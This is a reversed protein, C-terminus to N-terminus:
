RIGGCPHLCPLTRPCSAALHDQCEQSSCVGEVVPLAACSSGSCYRCQATSASSGTSRGSEERFEIMGKLTAADAVATLWFLKTRGCGEHLNVKIAEEEEKFVQRTHLRTRRHLHLFRDCDACLNGCSDCLIIAQTEGDDHNTCTPRDPGGVGGGWDGSSLGEVHDVTLVTLAAVALWVTGCRVGEEPARLEPGLRTLNLVAEAIASKSIYAWDDGFSGQSMERIMQVIEESIKKSLSGRLWWRSGVMARPHICSALCVTSMNKGGVGSKKKVQVQLSKAICGLFIDLIGTHHPDFAPDESKSQLSAATLITFDKPPLSPVSLINAFRAPPILPVVRRLVAIVARQVRATGTHLLSLLDRLLNFQQSLYFRGVKSGSLALVMSLMEFCYSDSLKPVEEQEMSGHESCLSLEWDDRLCAAEKSIAAVIHSCVQKQLHSLKSRSFLIGVVHEKLDTGSHGEWNEALVEVAEADPELLKGFVQSTILRFVRLTEVECNSQQIRQSEVKEPPNPSAAETPKGVVKIQRLRVTNDPGKIEVRVVGCGVEGLFCTVWGAFRSDVELSKVVVMDDSSRGTKFTLTGVKNGIDRGNDIHIALSRPQAQGPLKVAVWKTQPVFM